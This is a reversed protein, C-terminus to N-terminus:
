ELSRRVVDVWEEKHNALAVEGWHAQATEKTYQLPRDTRVKPVGPRSWWTNTDPNYFGGVHYVPDEYVVGEYQYHGYELEPPYLYVEGRTAANLAGTDSILRGNMFPMYVQMDLWVQDDLADQAADIQRGLESFDLSISYGDGQENMNLKSFMDRYYNEPIGM